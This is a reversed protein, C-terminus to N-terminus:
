GLYKNIIGLGEKRVTDPSMEDVIEGHTMVYLRDCLRIAVDVRQEILLLSAWRILGQEGRLRYPSALTLSAVLAPGNDAVIYKAHYKVVPDAYRHLQAGMSELLMWLQDLRKKWGKARVLKGTGTARIRKAASRNTKLKTKVKTKAM